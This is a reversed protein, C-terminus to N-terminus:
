RTFPTCGDSTGRASETAARHDTLARLSGPGADIDVIITGFLGINESHAPSMHALLEDDVRLGRERQEAVALGLYETTWATIANTAPTLCWAQETQTQLHRRHVAGAHPRTDTM